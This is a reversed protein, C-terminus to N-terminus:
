DEDVSAAADNIIDACESRAAERMEATDGYLANECSNVTEQDGAEAAEQKLQIIQEYTPIMINM